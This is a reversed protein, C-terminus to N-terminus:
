EYALEISNFFLPQVFTAFLDIANGEFESLVLIAVFHDLAHAEKGKMALGEMVHQLIRANLGTHAQEIGVFSPDALVLFISQYQIMIDAHGLTGKRLHAPM